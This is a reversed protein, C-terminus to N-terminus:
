NPAVGDRGVLIRPLAGLTGDAGKDATLAIAAGLKLEDRGGPAITIILADNPVIVNQSGDKYTLRM